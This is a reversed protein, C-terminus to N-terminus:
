WINDRLSNDFTRRATHKSLLYESLNCTRGYYGNLCSCLGDSGNVFGKGGCIDGGVLTPQSLVTLVLICAVHVLFGLICDVLKGRAM